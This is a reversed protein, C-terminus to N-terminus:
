DKKRRSRAIAFLIKPMIFGFAASKVICIVIRLMLNGTIIEPSYYGFMKSDVYIALTNLILIVLESVVTVAMIERDTNRYNHKMACLGVLLGSVAYPLIWLVTTPTLSYRLVQYIFTGVIGVLLGDVPGFLFAALLVPFSEFTIKIVTLDIAVAGLVACMAALM